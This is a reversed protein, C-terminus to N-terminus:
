THKKTSLCVEHNLDIWLIDMYNLTRFGLIRKKNDLRLSFISENDDLKLEELRRQATKSLESIKLFHNKSRGDDHTAKEIDGWTSLEFNKLSTFIDKFLLTEM